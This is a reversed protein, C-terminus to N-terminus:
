CPLVINNFSELMKVNDDVPNGMLRAQENLLLELTDNIYATFERPYNFSYSYEYFNPVENKKQNDLLDWGIAYDMFVAFCQPIEQNHILHLNAEIIKVIEMQGKVKYEEVYHIWIKQDDESLSDIGENENFVTRRGMQHLIRNFRIDNELLIAYVPGYLKSIQKDIQEKKWKITEFEREDEMNKENTKLSTSYPIIWGIIVFLLGVINLVIQIFQYSNNTIEM